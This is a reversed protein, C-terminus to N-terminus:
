KKTKLMTGEVLCHIVTNQTKGVESIYTQSPHHLAISNCLFVRLLINAKCTHVNM